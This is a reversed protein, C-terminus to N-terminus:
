GNPASRCGAAVNIQRFADGTRMDFSEGVAAPPALNGNILASVMTM